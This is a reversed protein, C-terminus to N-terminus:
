REGGSDEEESDDQQADQIEDFNEEDENAFTVPATARPPRSSSRSAM